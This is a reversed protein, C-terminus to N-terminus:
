VYRAALATNLRQHELENTLQQFRGRSTVVDQVQRPANQIGNQFEVVQFSCKTGQFVSPLKPSSGGFAREVTTTVAESLDATSPIFATLLFGLSTFLESNILFPVIGLANKLERLNVTSCNILYHIELKGNILIFGALLFLHHDSIAELVISPMKEM